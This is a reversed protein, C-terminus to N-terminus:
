DAGDARTLSGISPNGTHKEFRSVALEARSVTKLPRKAEHDRWLEFIDRMKLKDAAKKSPDKSFVPAAKHAKLTEPEPHPEPTEVPEGKTRLQVQKLALGHATAWKYVMPRLEDIDKPAELHHAKLDERFRQLVDGIREGAIAGTVEQDLEALLSGWVDFDVSRVGRSRVEEDRALLERASEKAIYAVEQPTPLRKPHAPAIPATPEIGMEHLQTQFQAAYHAELERHKVAAQPHSVRGLPTSIETKGYIGRLAAPISIRSYFSRGKFTLGAIKKAM